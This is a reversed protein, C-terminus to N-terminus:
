TDRPIDPLVQEMMLSMHSTIEPTVSLILWPFHSPVSCFCNGCDVNVYKKELSFHPRDSDDSSNTRSSGGRVRKFATFTTCCTATIEPWRPRLSSSYPCPDDPGPSCHCWPVKAGARGPRREPALWATGQVHDLRRCHEATQAQRLTLLKRWKTFDKYSYDTRKKWSVNKIAEDELIYEWVFPLGSFSPVIFQSTFSATWLPILLLKYCTCGWIRFEEKNSIATM